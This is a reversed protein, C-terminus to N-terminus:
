ISNSRWSGLAFGALGDHQVVIAESQNPKVATRPGLWGAGARM